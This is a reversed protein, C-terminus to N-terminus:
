KNIFYLSEGNESIALIDNKNIKDFSNENMEVVYKINNDNARCPEISNAKMKKVSVVRNNGDCFVLCLNYSVNKNWFSHDSPWPFKFLACEDEKLPDTFMLGNERKEQNNAFLIIKYKDM